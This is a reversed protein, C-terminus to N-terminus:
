TKNSFIDPPQLVTDENLLLSVPSEKKKSLSKTQHGSHRRRRKKSPTQHGHQIETFLRILNELGWIFGDSSSNSSFSTHAFDIMRVDFEKSKITARHRHDRNCTYHLDPMPPSDLSSKEEKQIPPKNTRYLPPSSGGYEAFEEFYDEEDEFYDEEDEEGDSNTQKMTGRQRHSALCGESVILLSTSFFKLSNSRLTELM